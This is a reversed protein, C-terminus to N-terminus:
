PMPPAIDMILVPVSDKGITNIKMGNASGSHVLIFIPKGELSSLVKITPSFINVVLFLSLLLLPRPNEITDPEM